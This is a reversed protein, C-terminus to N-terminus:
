KVRTYRHLQRGDNKATSFSDPRNGGNMTVCLTLSDGDLQYIGRATGQWQCFDIAHAGVNKVFLFTGRGGDIVRGDALTQYRHFRRDSFKLTGVFAIRPQAEVPGGDREHAVERWEGQLNRFDPASRTQLIPLFWAIIPVGLLVAVIGSSIWTWAVSRGATSAKVIAVVAPSCLAGHTAGSSFTVASQVATSVFAASEAEAVLSQTLIATLAASGVTVGRRKLRDALRTRARQLWSGVTPVTSGLAAAIETLSHQELHYLVFPVRWKDPLRNVEDDLISRIESWQATDAPSPM